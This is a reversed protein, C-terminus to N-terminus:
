GVTTFYLNPAEFPYNESLTIIGHYFGKSLSSDEPGQLTFHWELQNEDIPVVLMKPTKAM